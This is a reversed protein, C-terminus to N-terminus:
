VRNGKTIQIYKIYNIKSVFIMLILGVIFFFSQMKFFKFPDNFRYESWVMSASTIMLIGFLSILIVSIFLKYDIKKMNNETDLYFTILIIRMFNITLIKNSFILSNGQVKKYVKESEYCNNGTEEIYICKDSVSM